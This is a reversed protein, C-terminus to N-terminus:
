RVSPILCWELEDAERVMLAGVAEHIAIQADSLHGAVTNGVHGNQRKEWADFGAKTAYVGGYTRLDRKARTVVDRMEAHQDILKAGVPIRATRAHRVGDDTPSLQQGASDIPLHRHHLEFADRYFQERAPALTHATLEPSLEDLRDEADRWDAHQGHVRADRLRREVLKRACATWEQARANKAHTITEHVDTM